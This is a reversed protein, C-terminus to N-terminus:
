HTEKEKGRSKMCLPWRDRIGYSVANVLARGRGGAVTVQAQHHLSQMAPLMARWLTRGAQMPQLTSLPSMARWQWNWKKRQGTYVQFIQRHMLATLCTAGVNHKLLGPWQMWGRHEQRSVDPQWHYVTLCMCKDSAMCEWM